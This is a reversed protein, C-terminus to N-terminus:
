ETCLDIMLIPNSNRKVVEVEEEILEVLDWNAFIDSSVSTKSCDVINPSNLREDRYCKGDDDYYFKDQITRNIDTWEWIAYYGEGGHVIEVVKGNRVKWKGKTTKM